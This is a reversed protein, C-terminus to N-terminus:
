VRCPGTGPTVSYIHEAPAVVGFKVVLRPLEKRAETEAGVSAGATAFDTTKVVRRVSDPTVCLGTCCNINAILLSCLIGAEQLLVANRM